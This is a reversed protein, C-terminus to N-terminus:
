SSVETETAAPPDGEARTALYAGAGGCGVCPIPDGAEDKHIWGMRRCWPCLVWDQESHKPETM